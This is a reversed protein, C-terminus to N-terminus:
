WVILCKLSTKHLWNRKGFEFIPQEKEYVHFCRQQKVLQDMFNKLM